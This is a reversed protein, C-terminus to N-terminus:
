AALNNSHLGCSAGQWRRGYFVQPRPLTRRIAPLPNAVTVNVSNSAAAMSVVAGLFVIKRM